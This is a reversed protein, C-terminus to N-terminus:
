DAVHLVYHNLTGASMAGVMTIAWAEGALAAKAVKLLPVPAFALIFVMSNFALKGSDVAITGAGAGNKADWRLRAGGTEVAMLNSYILVGQLAAGAAAKLLAKAREPTEKSNKVTEWNNERVANWYAMAQHVMGDEGINAPRVPKTKETQRAEASLAPVKSSLHKPTQASALQQGAPGASRYVQGANGAQVGAAGNAAGDFFRASGERSGFTGAAAIGELGNLSSSRPASLKGEAAAKFQACGGNAFYRVDAKFEPTFYKEATNVDGANLSCDKFRKVLASVKEKKEALRAAAAPGMDRNVGKLFDATIAPPLKVAQEASWPAAAEKYVVPGAFLPAAWALALAAAIPINKTLNMTYITYGASRGRTLARLGLGPLM